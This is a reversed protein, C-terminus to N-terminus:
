PVRCRRDATQRQGAQLPTSLSILNLTFSGECFEDLLGLEVINLRGKAHTVPM